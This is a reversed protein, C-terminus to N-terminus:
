SNYYWLYWFQFSWGLYVLVYVDLDSVSQGRGLVMVTDILLKVTKSDKVNGEAMKSQSSLAPPAAGPKWIQHRVQPLTGTSFELQFSVM